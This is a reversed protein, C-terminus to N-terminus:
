SSLTWSTVSESSRSRPLSFGCPAAWGLGNVATRTSSAFSGSSRSFCPTLYVPSTALRQTVSIIPQIM